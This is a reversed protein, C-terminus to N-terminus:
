QGLGSESGVCHRWSSQCWSLKNGPCESVLADRYGCTCSPCVCEPSWVAWWELVCGCLRCGRYSKMKGWVGCHAVASPHWSRLTGYRSSLWRPLIPFIFPVLWVPASVAHPNLSISYMADCIHFQWHFGNSYVILASIFVNLLYVYEKFLSPQIRPPMHVLTQLRLTSELTLHNLPCTYLSDFSYFWLQLTYLIPFWQRNMEHKGENSHGRLLVDDPNSWCGVLM